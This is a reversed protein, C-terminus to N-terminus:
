DDSAASFRHGKFDGMVKKMAENLEGSLAGKEEIEELHEPFEDEFHRLLDAEFELVKDGPIDDLLGQTGAFISIVQQTFTYPTYQPQKLLEVMRLGRDLQRQTAADLETGLQAFAELERFSALDLRLSGAIKKM